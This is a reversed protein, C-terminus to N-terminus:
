SKSVDLGPSQMSQVAEVRFLAIEICFSSVASILKGLIQAQRRAAGAYYRWQRQQCVLVLFRFAM